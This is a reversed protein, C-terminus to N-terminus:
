NVSTKRTLENTTETLKTILSSQFKLNDFTNISHNTLWLMLRERINAHANLEIDFDFKETSNTISHLKKDDLSSVFIRHAPNKSSYESSIARQLNQENMENLVQTISHIMQRTSENGEELNELFNDITSLDSYVMVSSLNVERVCGLTDRIQILIFLPSSPDISAPLYLQYMSKTTYGLM